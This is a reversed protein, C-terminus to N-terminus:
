GQSGCDPLLFNSSFSEFPPNLGERPDPLAGLAFRLMGSERSPLLAMTFRPDVIAMPRCSYSVAHASESVTISTTM